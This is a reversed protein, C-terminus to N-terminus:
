PAVPISRIAPHPDYDTLEFHDARFGHIDTVQRGLDNLRVTPLPRPERELMTRVADVQDEYIHADSITHYYAAAEFGTLHELMLLLAAYQVMNSPVGIPVDGSRQFMHLHLRGDLVRVHVWGHCPAITAKPTKGAGRVLYQPIWPSVFHTRDGPLERLQEVLHRFQDFGEAGEVTSFDHFAAGYSGPGLDGPPLGRKATKAETGWPGWWDCGFKELESLTRAGNIFACLEGIPKNWFSKISRETILPFGNSLDFRMTQQMLTIAAPGQRTPVPSGTELIRRLLERYQGDPTRERYPSYRM